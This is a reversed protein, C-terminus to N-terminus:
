AAESGLYAAAMHRPVASVFFLYRGLMERRSRPRLALALVAPHVHLAAACGGRGRAPRRACGLWAFPTSSCRASARLEVTDSASLRFFRLALAVMQAAAM